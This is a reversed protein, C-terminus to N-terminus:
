LKSLFNYGKSFSCSLLHENFLAFSKLLQFEFQMFLLTTLPALLCCSSAKGKSPSCTVGSGKEHLYNNMEKQEGKLLSLQLSETSSCLSAKIKKWELSGKGWNRTLRYIKIESLKWQMRKLDSWDHGVRQSGMSQLGGPERDTPNELCSYQLPNGHGEAPCRESEPILGTDTIDGARAPLNKVVLAM